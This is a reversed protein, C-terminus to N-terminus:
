RIALARKLEAILRRSVRAVQGDSLVLKTGSDDSAITRIQALAVLESRHVRFFGHNRLRIELDSLSEEVLYERGETEFATYKASAHFRTIERADFLHISGGEQATIRCTAIERDANLVRRLTEAMDDDRGGQTRVRAVARALRARQIPKLLYHIANADFAEVAYEDYATTFIVPPLDPVSSALTLGDLGPMRIDLFLVDLTERRLIDRAEEGDAAEAIVSVGDIAELMRVLRSRALPEDDVVLARMDDDRM